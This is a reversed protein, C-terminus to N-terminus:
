RRYGGNFGSRARYGLDFGGGSVTVISNLKTKALGLAGPRGRARRARSHTPELVEPLESLSIGFAEFYPLLNVGTQKLGTIQNVNGSQGFTLAKGAYDFAMVEGTTGFCMALRIPM